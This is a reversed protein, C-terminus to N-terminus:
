GLRPPARSGNTRLSVLPLYEQSSLPTVLEVSVAVLEINRAPCEAAGANKTHLVLSVGPLSSSTAASWTLASEEFLDPGAEFVGWVPALLALLIRSNQSRAM